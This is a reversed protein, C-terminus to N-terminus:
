GLHVASAVDASPFMSCHFIPLNYIRHKLLKLVEDWEEMM